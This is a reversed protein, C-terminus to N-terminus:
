FLDLIVTISFYLAIVLTVLYGLQIFNLLLTPRQQRYDKVFTRFVVGLGVLTLFPYGSQYTLTEAILSPVTVGLLIVGATLIIIYRLATKHSM